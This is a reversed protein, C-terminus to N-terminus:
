DAGKKNVPLGVTQLQDIGNFLAPGNARPPYPFYAIHAIHLDPEARM